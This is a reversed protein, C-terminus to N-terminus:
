GKWGSHPQPDPVAVEEAAPPVSASRTAEETEVVLWANRLQLLCSIQEDLIERSARFQAELLKQRSLDYYRELNRAVEGGAQHNLKSQLHGLIVLAHNIANTRAAIRNHDIAEVARRLDEVMQEYLLVVARVPSAGRAASQRYLTRADM